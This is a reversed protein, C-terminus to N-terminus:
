AHGDGSEDRVIQVGETDADIRLRVSGVPLRDIHVDGVIAPAPVADFRGHPADSELALSARLMEFPAAAAWAQPSCSTPYPVPAPKDSRDFGCFLEPLRGGFAELADLLGGLVQQAADRRGYRVMGSLGLVTDHPWVSGDHYSAPNYAACTASLTRIGFGSFMDPAVLRDIVADAVTDDVIGTMLCHGINSTVADVQRKRGDLALAYFGAAPMWYAEHFRRRLEDARRDWASARDASGWARFLDAAARFAAYSYGQVEALAIPPRARDGDAFVMSDVSDKWGQNELGRDTSRQYEVFGDGDRDGYSVIWDLAREVAPRLGALEDPEIGWHLCRGAVMVFLATSDISGFYIGHGGLAQSLDAGTRVEHLIRGPQEESMPDVHDGQLRALTRLTGLALEPTFQLMMWSTLLADRGFLTMFWPAGAAVVADEPHGPDVIRLAGLDRESTALARALVTNDVAIEPTARRWGQMRRSPETAEVPRDSPFQAAVEQGEVTPLVQVTTSWAAQPAVVARFALTGAGAAAGLGTVRVGRQQPLGTRWFMLDTGAFRHEVRPVSRPRGEKVEFLDAFDAGVTLTIDLGAPEAGYNHVEIDERMGQGVYRHREVVITPEPHAARRGARGVFVCEFPELPIVTLGEVPQGDIALEWRSIVRTDRVFLGDPRDPRVTGDHGSVCFTSGEVLTVNPQPQPVLAIGRPRSRGGARLREAAPVPRVDPRGGRSGGDQAHRDRSLLEGRTTEPETM